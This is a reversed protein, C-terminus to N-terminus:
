FLPTKKLERAKQLKSINQKIGNKITWKSGDEEWVDGEKREVEDKQYGAAITTKAGDKGQILNRLRQVDKKPFQKKLKSESM